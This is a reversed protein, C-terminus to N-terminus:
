LSFAEHMSSNVALLAQHSLLSVYSMQGIIEEDTLRNEESAAMNAQVLVRNLHTSAWFSDGFECLVSMIDKGEEVQKLVSQEGAQFANRKHFYVNKAETDM